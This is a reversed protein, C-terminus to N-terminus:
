PYQLSNTSMWLPIRISPDAMKVQASGGSRKVIVGPQWKGGWKALVHDGVAFNGQTTAVAPAAGSSNNVRAMITPWNPPVGRTAPTSPNYKSNLPPLARGNIALTPM